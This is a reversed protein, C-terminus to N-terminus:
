NLILEHFHNFFIIKRLEEVFKTLDELNYFNPSDSHSRDRYNISRLPSDLRAENIIRYMSDCGFEDKFFQLRELFELEHREDDQLWIIWYCDLEDHSVKCKHEGITFIEGLQIM